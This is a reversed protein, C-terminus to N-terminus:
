EVLDSFNIKYVNNKGKGIFFISVDFQNKVKFPTKNFVVDYGIDCLQTISLLIHKFWYIILVNNISPFFSNHINRLDIIKERQNGGFCVIDKPFISKQKYTHTNFERWLLWNIVLTHSWRSAEDESKEDKLLLKLLKMISQHKM